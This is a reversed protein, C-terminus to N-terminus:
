PLRASIGGLFIVAAFLVVILRDRLSALEDVSWDAEAAAGDQIKWRNMWLFLIM